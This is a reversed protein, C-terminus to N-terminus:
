FKWTLDFQLVRYDTIPNLQPLDPNAGGTGLKDNVRHAYGFRATTIVTDAPSYAIATFLGQLNTRGEMFDSDTLNPDLAYQQVRQWFARAEWVGARIKGLRTGGTSLDMTGYALGLKDDRETM